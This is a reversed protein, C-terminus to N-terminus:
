SDSLEVLIDEIEMVFSPRADVLDVLEDYFLRLGRVNLFVQPPALSAVAVGQALGEASDVVELLLDPEGGGLGGLSGGRQRDLGRRGVQLFDQVREADREVLGTREAFVELLQASKEALHITRLDRSRERRQQGFVGETHGDAQEAGIGLDGVIAHDSM